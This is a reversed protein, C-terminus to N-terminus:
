EVKIAEYLAELAKQMHTNNENYIGFYEEYTIDEPTVALATPPCLLTLTLLITLTLPLKKM